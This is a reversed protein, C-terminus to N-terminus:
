RKEKLFAIDIQVVILYLLWNLGHLERMVACM